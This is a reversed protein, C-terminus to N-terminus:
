HPGPVAGWWSTWMSGYDLADLELPLRKKWEPARQLSDLLLPTRNSVPAAVMGLAGAAASM